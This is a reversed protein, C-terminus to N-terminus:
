LTPPPTMTETRATRPTRPIQPAEFHALGIADAKLPQHEPEHEPTLQRSSWTAAAPASSCDRSAPGCVLAHWGPTTGPEFAVIYQHHLEALLQTTAAFVSPTDDIPLSDGGTWAALDAMPGRM